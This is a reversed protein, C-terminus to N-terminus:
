ECRKAPRANNSTPGGPVPLTRREYQSSRYAHMDTSTHNLHNQKSTESSTCLCQYKIMISKTKKKFDIERKHIKEKVNLIMTESYLLMISRM